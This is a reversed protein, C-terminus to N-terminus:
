IIFFNTYRFPHQIFPIVVQRIFLLIYKILHNVIITNFLTLSTSTINWPRFHKFSKVITAITVITLM